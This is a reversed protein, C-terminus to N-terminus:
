AEQLALTFKRIGRTGVSSHVNLVRASVIRVPKVLSGSEGSYKLVGLELLDMQMSETMPFGGHFIVSGFVYLVNLLHEAV